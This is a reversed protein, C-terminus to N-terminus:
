IVKIVTYTRTNGVTDNLVTDGSQLWCHASFPENTVGFFLSTRHHRRALFTGLSLSDLLCCTALPVIKRAKHFGMTERLLRPEDVDMGRTGRERRSGDLDDLISKLRRAKLRRQTSCVIALVEMVMALRCTARIDPLELVSRFAAEEARPEIAPPTPTGNLIGSRILTKINEESVASGDVYRVFLQEMTPSLHFYRDNGLDLFIVHGDIRCFSLDDRLRHCIM